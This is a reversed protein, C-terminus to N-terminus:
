GWALFPSARSGVAEWRGELDTVRPAWPTDAMGQEQGLLLQVTDGVAQVGAKQSTSDASGRRGTMIAPDFCMKGQVRPAPLPCPGMTPAWSSGWSAHTGLAIATYMQSALQDGTPAAPAGVMGQSGGGEWPAASDLSWVPGSHAPQTPLTAMLEPDQRGRFGLPEQM